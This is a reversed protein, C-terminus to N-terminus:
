NSENVALGSRSSGLQSKKIYSYCEVTYGKGEMDMPGLDVSEVM